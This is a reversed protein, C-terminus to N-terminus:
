QLWRIKGNKEDHRSRGVPSFDESRTSFVLYARKEWKKKTTKTKKIRMKNMGWKEDLRGNIAPRASPEALFARKEGLLPSGGGWTFFFFSEGESLFLGGGSWVCFFLFIAGLFCGVGSLFADVLDGFSFSFTTSFFSFLQVAGWFICTSTSLKSWRAFAMELSTCSCPRINLKSSTLCSWFFLVTDTKTTSLRDLFITLGALSM